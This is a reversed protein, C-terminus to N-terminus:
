SNGTERYEVCYKCQGDNGLYHKKGRVMEGYFCIEPSMYEGVMTFNELKDLGACLPNYRNYTDGTDSGLENRCIPCTNNQDSIRTYHMATLMCKKHFAHGCCTLHANSKHIIPDMCIACTEGIKMYARVNLYPPCWIEGIVTPLVSQSLHCFCEWKRTKHINDDGCQIMYERTPCHLLEADKCISYHISNREYKWFIAQDDM